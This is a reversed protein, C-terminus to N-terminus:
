GISSPSLDRPVKAFEPARGLEITKSSIPSIVYYRPVRGARYAVM